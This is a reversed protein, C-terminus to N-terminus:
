HYPNGFKKVCDLTRREKRLKEYEAKIKITNRINELVLGQYMFPDREKLKLNNLKKRIEELNYDISSNWKKLERDKYDCFRAILDKATSGDLEWLKDAMIAPSVIWLFAEDLEKHQSSPIDAKMAKQIDDLSELNNISKVDLITDAKAMNEVVLGLALVLSITVLYVRVM